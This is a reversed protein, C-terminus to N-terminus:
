EKRRMYVEVKDIIALQFLQREESDFNLLCPIVCVRLADLM